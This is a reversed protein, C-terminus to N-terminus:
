EYGRAVAEHQGVTATGRGRCKAFGPRVYPVTGTGAGPGPRIVPLYRYRYGEMFAAVGDCTMLIGFPADGTPTRIM